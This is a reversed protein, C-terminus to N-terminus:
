CLSSFWGLDRGDRREGQAMKREELKTKKDQQLREEQIRLCQVLLGLGVKRMGGRDGAATFDANERPELNKSNLNMHIM